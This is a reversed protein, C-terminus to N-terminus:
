FAWSCKGGFRRGRQLPSWGHAGTPGWSLWGFGVVLWILLERPCRRWHWLGFGFGAVFFLGLHHSIFIECLPDTWYGGGFCSANLIELETPDVQATQMADLRMHWNGTTVYYVWIEAALLLLAPPVAWVLKPRWWRGAQLWLGLYVPAMLVVTERFLWAVGFYFSAWAYDATREQKLGRQWYFLSLAGLVGSWLDVYLYTSYLINLPFFVCLWAALQAARESVFERTLFYVLVIELLGGLMTFVYPVWLKLGFIKILLACPLVFGIRLHWHTPLPPWSNDQGTAISQLWYNVDDRMSLGSFFYLRVLLAVGLCPLWFRLLQSPATSPTVTSSMKFRASDVWGAARFLNWNAFRM